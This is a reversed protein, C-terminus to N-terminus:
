RGKPKKTALLEYIKDAIGKATRETAIIEFNPFDFFMMIEGTKQDVYKTIKLEDGVNAIPFFPGGEDM